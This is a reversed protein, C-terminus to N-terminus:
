LYCKNYFLTNHSEATRDRDAAGQLRIVEKFAAVKARIDTNAARHSTAPMFYPNLLHRLYIVGSCRRHSCDAHMRQRRQQGTFVRFIPVRTELDKEGQRRGRQECGPGM